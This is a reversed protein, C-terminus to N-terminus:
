LQEREQQQLAEQVRAAAHACYDSSIDFHIFRRGSLAAMKATTGSGGFIDLVIDGENSWTTIHDAALQEPFVAPHATNKASRNNNGVTYYFINSRKKEDKIIRRRVHQLQGDKDWATPSTPYGAYKCPETLANFTKPTGKSFVFMYEFAQYYRRDSRPMPNNKAFIMTDHLRFGAEKIALAHRFSTGTESGNETADNVVWVVVGGPKTIRYLEAAIGELDFDCGGYKRLSDYPPSTVTLDISDAPIYERMATLCESCVIKNIVQQMNHAAQTSTM